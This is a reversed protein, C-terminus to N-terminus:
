YLHLSDLFKGQISSEVNGKEAEEEFGEVSIEQAEEIDM